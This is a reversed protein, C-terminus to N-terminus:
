CAPTGHRRPRSAAHLPRTPALDLHYIHLQFLLALGQATEKGPEHHAVREGALVAEGLAVIGHYTRVAGGRFRLARSGHQIDARSRSRTCPRRPTDTKPSVPGKDLLCAPRLLVVFM